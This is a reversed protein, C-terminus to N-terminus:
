GRNPGFLRETWRRVRPVALVLAAWLVFASFTILSPVIVATVLERDM